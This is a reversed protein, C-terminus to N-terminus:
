SLTLTPWITNDENYSASEDPFDRLAQRYTKIATLNAEQGVATYPSDELVMWDTNTLKQNRMDRIESISYPRFESLTQSSLDYYWHEQVSDNAVEIWEPSSADNPRTDAIYQVRNNSNIFIFKAM